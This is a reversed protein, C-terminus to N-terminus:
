VILQTKKVYKVCASEVCYLQIFRIRRPHKLIQKWTSEQAFFHLRVFPCVICEIGRDRFVKYASDERLFLVIPKVSDKVSEILDLLSQTSGGLTPDPCIYLVTIM